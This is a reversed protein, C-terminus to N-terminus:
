MGGHLVVYVLWAFLGVLVIGDVINIVARDSLRAM